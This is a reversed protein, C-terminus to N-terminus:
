FSFLGFGWVFSYHKIKHFVKVMDDEVIQLVTKFLFTLCLVHSWAQWQSTARSPSPGLTVLPLFPWPRCEGREM